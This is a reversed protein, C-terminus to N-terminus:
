SERSGGELARREAELDRNIAADASFKQPYRARLKDINRGLIDEIPVKMQRSMDWVFTYVMNFLSELETFTPRKGYFKWSKAIDAIRTFIHMPARMEKTLTLEIKGAVTYPEVARVGEMLFWMTDGLEEIGNVEDGTECAKLIEIFETILGLACHVLRDPDSVEVATRASQTKYEELKM